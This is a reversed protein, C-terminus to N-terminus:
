SSRIAPQTHRETHPQADRSDKDATMRVKTPREADGPRYYNEATGASRSKRIAHEPQARFLPNVLDGSGRTDRLTSLLGGRLRSTAAKEVPLAAEVWGRSARQIIRVQAPTVRM